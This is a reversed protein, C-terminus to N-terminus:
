DQDQPLDEDEDFATDLMHKHRPNDTNMHDIWEDNDDHLQKLAKRDRIIIYIMDGVWYLAFLGVIIKAWLETTSM